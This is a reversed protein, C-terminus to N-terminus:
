REPRRGLLGAKTVDANRRENTEDMMDVNRVSCWTGSAVKM